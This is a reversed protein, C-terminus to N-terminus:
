SSLGQKQYKPALMVSVVETDSATGPDLLFWPEGTSLTLGDPLPTEWYNSRM